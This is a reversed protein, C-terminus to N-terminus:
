IASSGSDSVVQFLIKLSSWPVDHLRSFECHLHGSRGAENTTPFFLFFIASWFVMVVVLLLGASPGTRRDRFSRVFERRVLSFTVIIWIM